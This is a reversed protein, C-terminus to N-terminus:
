GVCGQLFTINDILALIKDLNQASILETKKQLLNFYMEISNTTNTDINKIFIHLNFFLKKLDFYINQLNQLENINGVYSNEFDMIWPRIGNTSITTTFGIEPIDYSIATQKTTKLLINGPHFDGHIIKFRYLATIYSILTHKLLTRLLAINTDNFCYNALSGLSFYPMILVKMKSGPGDCLTNKNDSPYKIFNDNCEFYCIYKVFGKIKNLKLSITYENFINSSDGIKIVVEGYKELNSLLIRSKDYEHLPLRLSKIIKLWPESTTTNETIRNQCNSIYYKNSTSNLVIGHTKPLNRVTFDAM